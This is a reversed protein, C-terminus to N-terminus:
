CGNAGIGTVTNISLGTTLSVNGSSVVPNSCTSGTMDLPNNAIGSIDFYNGIWNVNVFSGHVGQIEYNAVPTLFEATATYPDNAPNVTAWYEGPHVGSALPCVIASVNSGCDYNWTSGVGSGSLNQFLYADTGNISMGPVILGGATNITNITLVGGAITFNASVNSPSSATLGQLMNVIGVNGEVNFTGVSNGSPNGSVLTTMTAEHNVNSQLMTDHLYNATAYCNVEGIVGHGM